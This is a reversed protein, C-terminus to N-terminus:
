QPVNSKCSILKVAAYLLLLKISCEIATKNTNAAAPLDACNKNCVQNGIAIAM